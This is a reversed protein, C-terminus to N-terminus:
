CFFIAEKSDGYVHDFHCIQIKEVDPNVLEFFEAM